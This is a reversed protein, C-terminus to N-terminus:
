SPTLPTATGAMWEQILTEMHWNGIHSGNVPDTTYYLDGGLPKFFAVNDRIWAQGARPRESLVRVKHYGVIVGVGLFLMPLGKIVFGPGPKWPGVRSFIADDAENILYTELYPSGVENRLDDTCPRLSVRDLRGLGSDLRIAQM